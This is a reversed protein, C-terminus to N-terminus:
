DDSGPAAGEEEDEDEDEEEEPLFRDLIELFPDPPTLNMKKNVEDIDVGFLHWEEGRVWLVDGSIAYPASRYEKEVLMKMLYLFPVTEQAVPLVFMQDRSPLGVFCGDAADPLLTDLLLARSSDYADAVNCLMLGSDEDVVELCDDPTRDRLNALAKELWDDGPKGSDAVMKDTVYVMRSPYDIVLSLVLGTESLPRTWVKAEESVAQMPQGLRVLLQETVTALDTPLEGSQETVNVSRLFEVILEQWDERPARRARRYLNELGVVQDAGNADACEVSHGLWRRAQWGVSVLAERFAQLFTGPYLPPGSGFGPDSRRRAM